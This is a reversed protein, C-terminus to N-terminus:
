NREHSIARMILINIYSETSVSSGDTSQNQSSNVRNGLSGSLDKLNTRNSRADEFISRACIISDTGYFNRHWRLGSLCWLMKMSHVVLCEKHGAPCHPKSETASLVVEMDTVIHHDWGTRRM